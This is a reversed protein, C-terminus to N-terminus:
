AARDGRAVEGMGWGLLCYAWFSLPFMGVCCLIVGFQAVFSGVWYLLLALLYPVLNRKIFAVNEGVQFATGFDGDALAFRTLAAPLYAILVFMAVFMLGYVSLFVMARGAGPPDGGRPGGAAGAMGVLAGVICGLPLFFAFTHALVVGTFKLGDSFIGGLDDWDPLPRDLGNAANKTLRMYYGGVFPIGVLIMSLLSFLGGYLIKQQWDPDDFFFRLGRGFDFNAGAGGGSPPPPPPAPRYVPPPPPPPPLSSM